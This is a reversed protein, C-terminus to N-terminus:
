NNKENNASVGLLVIVVEVKIIGKEKEVCTLGYREDNM